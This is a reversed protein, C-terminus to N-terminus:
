WITAVITSYMKEVIPAIVHFCIGYATHYKTQNAHSHALKRHVEPLQIGPGRLLLWRENRRKFRIAVPLKPFSSVVETLEDKVSKEKQAWGRYMPLLVRRIFFRPLQMGLRILGYTSRRIQGEGVPWHSLLILLIGLFRMEFAERVAVRLVFFTYRKMWQLSHNDM